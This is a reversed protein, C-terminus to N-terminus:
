AARLPRANAAWQIWESVEQLDPGDQNRLIRRGEASELFPRMASLLEEASRGALLEPSTIGCAALIQADHGRLEPIRCVLQAQVQWRRVVESTVRKQNLKESLREATVSLLEEITRVGAGHLLEATRPGISPAQVVDSTRSLYFRMGGLREVPQGEVSVAPQPDVRL